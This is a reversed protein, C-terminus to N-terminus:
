VSGLSALADVARLDYSFWALALILPTLILPQSSASNVVTVACYNPEGQVGPCMRHPNM